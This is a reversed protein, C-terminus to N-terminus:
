AIGRRRLDRLTVLRKELYAIRREHGPQMKEPYLPTVRRSVEISRPLDELAADVTPYRGLYALVRQKVKGEERYGQVLQYYEVGDVRNKRVYAM